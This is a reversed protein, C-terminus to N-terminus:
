SAEALMMLAEQRLIGPLQIQRREISLLWMKIEDNKLTYLVDRFEDIQTDNYRDAQIGKYRDLDEDEFYLIQEPNQLMEEFECVEHAGCCNGPIQLPEEEVQESEGKKGSFLNRIWTGLAVLVGFALLVLLLVKM